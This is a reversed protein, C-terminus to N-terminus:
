STFLSDKHPHKTWYRDRCDKNSIIPIAADQLIEPMDSKPQGAKSRGWGAIRCCRGDEVQKPSVPLCAPKKSIRTVLEYSYIM